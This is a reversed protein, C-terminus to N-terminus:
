GTALRPATLAAASKGATKSQHATPGLRMETGGLAPHLAGTPRVVEGSHRNQVFHRRDPSFRGNPAALIAPVATEAGELSGFVM